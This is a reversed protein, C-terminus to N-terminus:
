VAPYVFRDFQLTCDTAPDRLAQFGLPHLVDTDVAGANPDGATFKLRPMTILLSYGDTPTAPNTHLRTHFGSATHAIMKALLAGSEFYATITGTVIIRGQRVGVAGRSKIARRGQRNTNVTFQIGQIATTLAALTSGELVQGVNSTANYVDTASAADAAGASSFTASTPTLEEKGIIGLVATVIQDAQITFQATNVECGPFAHFHQLSLDNFARELTFFTETSGNRLRSADIKVNSIPGENVLTEEVTIANTTASAVRFFGVNAPNLSAGTM